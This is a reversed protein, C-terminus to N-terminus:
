SRSPTEPSGYKQSENEQITGLVSANDELQAAYWNVTLALGKELPTAAQWDIREHTDIINAARVPETPRSPLAGFLPRTEPKVLHVLEEVVKRIPTLTGSGLDITSGEVNNAQAAALLGQIVDDIYIWDVLRQGNSLKPAEGRLLSLITYPILKQVPQGPGYTMFIRTIVVPTQYLQYFMRAYVASAWKAAAYPSSPVPEEDVGQPEELSSTLIVRRIKLETAVTLLNVTAILDNHLTPRVHELGPAGWGHTTLHFIIHPQIKKILVQTTAFDSLDGQWWQLQKDSARLKRSVAHLDDSM